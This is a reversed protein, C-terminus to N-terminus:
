GPKSTITPLITSSSPPTRPPDPSPSPVSSVPGSKQSTTNGTSASSPPVPRFQHNSSIDGKQEGTTTKLRRAMSPSASPSMAASAGGRNDAHQRPPKPSKATELLSSSSSSPMLSSAGGKRSPTSPPRQGREDGATLWSAAVFSPPHLTNAAESCLTTSSDKREMGVGTGDEDEASTADRAKPSSPSGEEDDADDENNQSGNANEEGSAAMDEDNIELDEEGEEDDSYEEHSHAAQLLRELEARPSAALNQEQARKMQVMIRLTNQLYWSGGISGAGYSKPKVAGSRATTDGEETENTPSSSKSVAENKDNGGGDKRSKRRLMDANSVTQKSFKRTMNVRNRHAQQRRRLEAVKRRRVHRRYRRQILSAALHPLIKRQFTRATAYMVSSLVCQKATGRVTLRGRAYVRAFKGRLCSQLVLALNVEAHRKQKLRIAISQRAHKQFITAAKNKRYRLVLINLNWQILKYAEQWRAENLQHRTRCGRWFSQIYVAALERMTRMARRRQKRLMKQEMNRIAVSDEDLQAKMIDQIASSLKTRHARKERVVTARHLSGDAYFGTAKIESSFHHSRRPPGMSVLQQAALHHDHLSPFNQM